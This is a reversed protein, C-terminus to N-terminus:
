LPGGDVGNAGLYAASQLRQAVPDTLGFTIGPAPFARGRGLPLPDLRLDNSVTPPSRGLWHVIQLSGSM